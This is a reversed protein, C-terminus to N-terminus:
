GSLTWEIELLLTFSLLVQVLTSGIGECVGQFKASFEDLKMDAPKMDLEEKLLQTKLKPFFQFDSLSLQLNRSNPATSRESSWGELCFPLEISKM